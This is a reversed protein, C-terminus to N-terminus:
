ETSDNTYEEQAKLRINLEDLLRDLPPHSIKYKQIEEASIEKGDIFFKSEIIM